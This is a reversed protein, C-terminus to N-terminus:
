TPILTVNLGSRLGFYKATAAYTALRNPIMRQIPAARDNKRSRKRTGTTNANRAPTEANVAALCGVYDRQSRIRAQALDSPTECIGICPSNKKTVMHPTFISSECHLFCPSFM